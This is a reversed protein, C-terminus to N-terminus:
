HSDVEDEIKEPRQFFDVEELEPPLYTQHVPGAFDPNYKYGKGYDLEKMLKTPANRIHLPVPFAVNTAITQKVSKMAKYVEVSKPAHALYTVCHGLIADCEPMGIMQCSQYTAVALPLASNDALGIDESAFRVLRRAVYLPDEGAYIMRGLWYLSANADSGRMSKHLASIINYHEEGNRDYQLSTRQLAQRIMEESVEIESSADEALKTSPVASDMAMELTNLAARADGDCLGALHALVKDSVKVAQSMTEQKIKIARRLLITVDGVTLKDLVFVKSRSLLANNVRFSPNETTAAILTFEGKELAPLFFDQQAKTFRHIEDLFLISKRGTLTRHNRAEDAAKRVDAVNNITASLERYHAKQSKAIIRALTTKGSGPPGWFILSPVKNQDILNRLLTNEGILEQHGQVEDLSKPRALDALPANNDIRAKKLRPEESFPNSSTISAPPATADGNVEDDPRPRKSAPSGGGLNSTRRLVGSVPQKGPSGASEFLKTQVTRQGPTTAQGEPRTSAASNVACGSDIHQNIFRSCVPRTCIPCLVSASGEATMM